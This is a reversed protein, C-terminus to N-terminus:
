SWPPKEGTAGQSWGGAAPQQANTTQQQWGGPNSAPAATQQPNSQAAFGTQPAYGTQPAANPQSQAPAKGPENGNRDYVKKLEVYGGEPKEASPEHGKQFGIDMLGTAGRLAAGDNKFDVKFVGVAHCLASLQENAIKRATESENWLNYRHTISGADSTLEVAFMGGKQDKTPVVSTDTIRFPFKNGVPHAGGGQRPTIATADFVADFPM